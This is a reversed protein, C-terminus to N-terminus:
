SGKINLDPYLEKVCKPCMGHSFKAESHDQIYAELQNWGGKDDRIRKCSSCIPILGQLTKVEQRAHRLQDVTQHLEQNLHQENFLRIYERRRSQNLNRFMLIGVINAGAIYLVFRLLELARMQYVGYSAALYALLFIASLLLSDVFRNPILLYFILTALFLHFVNHIFPLPIMFGVLMMAVVIIAQNVIFFLRFGAFYTRAQHLYLASGVLLIGAIGRLFMVQIKVKEPTTLLDVGTFAIFILGGTLLINRASKKYDAWMTNIFSREFDGEIFEGSFRGLLEDPSKDVIKRSTEKEAHPVMANGKSSLQVVSGQFLIHFLRATSLCLIGKERRACGINGKNGEEEGPEWFCPTIKDAGLPLFELEPAITRFHSCYTLTDRSNKAQKKIRTGIYKRWGAKYDM